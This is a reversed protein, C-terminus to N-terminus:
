PSYRGTPLLASNVMTTKSVLPLAPLWVFFLVPASALGPLHFITSDLPRQSGQTAHCLISHISSSSHYPRSISLLSQFEYRDTTSITLSQARHEQVRNRDLVVTRIGALVPGFFLERDSTKGFPEWTTRGELVLESTTQISISCQWM